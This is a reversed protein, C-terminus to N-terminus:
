NLVQWATFSNQRTQWCISSFVLRSSVTLKIQRVTLCMDAVRAICVFKSSHKMKRYIKKSNIFSIIHHM